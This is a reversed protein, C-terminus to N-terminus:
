PAHVFLFCVGCRHKYHQEFHIEGVLALLEPDDRIAHMFALEVPANDVDLKIVKRMLFTLLCAPSLSPWVSLVDCYVFPAALPEPTGCERRGLADGGTVVLQWHRQRSCGSPHVARLVACWSTVLTSMSSSSTSPTIHAPHTPLWPLITSSTTPPTSRCLLLDAVPLFIRVPHM